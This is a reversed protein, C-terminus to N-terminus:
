IKYGEESNEESQQKRAFIDLFITVLEPDFWEGSKSQLFSFIIDEDLTSRYPRNSSLAEYVDCLTLIRVFKPIDSGKLGKM